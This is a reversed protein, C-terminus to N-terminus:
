SLDMVEALSKWVGAEPCVIIHDLLPCGIQEALSAISKTFGIDEYSPTPNGSPHNHALIIASANHVLAGRLIERAGLSCSHLSGRAVVEHGTIQNAGGVYLVHMEEGCLGAMKEMFVAAANDSCSADARAFRQVGECVLRCRYTKVEYSM